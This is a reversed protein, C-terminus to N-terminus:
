LSATEGAHQKAVEAPELKKWPGEFSGRADRRYQKHVTSVSSRQRADADDDNECRVIKVKDEKKRPAPPRKAAQPTETALAQIIFSRKLNQM